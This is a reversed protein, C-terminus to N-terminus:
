LVKEEEGQKKKRLPNRQTARAIRSSARYILSAKFESLDEQRQRPNFVCTVM